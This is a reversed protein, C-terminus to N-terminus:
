FLSGGHRLHRPLYDYAFIQLVMVPPLLKLNAPFPNSLSLNLPSEGFGTVPYWLNESRPSSAIGERSRLM